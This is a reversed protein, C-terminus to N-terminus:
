ELPMRSREDIFCTTYLSGSAETLPSRSHGPATRWVVAAPFRSGAAGGLLGIGAGEVFRSSGVEALLM